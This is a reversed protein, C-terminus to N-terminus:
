NDYTVIAAPYFQSRKQIQGGSSLDANAGGSSGGLQQNDSSKAQQDEQMDIGDDANIDQIDM